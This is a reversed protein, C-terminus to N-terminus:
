FTPSTQGGIPNCSEKMKMKMKMKISNWDGKTRGMPFEECKECEECKGMYDRKVDVLSQWKCDYIVLKLKIMYSREVMWLKDVKM